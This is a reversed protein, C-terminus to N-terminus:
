AAGGKRIPWVLRGRFRDYPERRDEPQIALGAEVIKEMPVNERKLAAIDSEKRAIGSKLDATRDLYKQYNREDGRREPQLSAVVAIALNACGTETVASPYRVLQCHAQSCIKGGSHREVTAGCGVRLYGLDLSCYEHLVASQICAKDFGPWGVLGCQFRCTDGVFGVDMGAGHVAEEVIGRGLAVVLGCGSKGPRTHDVPEICM